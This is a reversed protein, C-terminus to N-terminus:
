RLPTARGACLRSPFVLHLAGVLRVLSLPRPGVPKTGPHGRAPATRDQLCAPQLATMAQGDSTPGRCVTGTEEFRVNAASPLVPRLPADPGTLIRKRACASPVRVTCTAYAMEFRVPLATTRLRMRRRSRAATSMTAPSIAGPAYRTNGAWPAAVAGNLSRVSLRRWLMRAAPASAFPSLHVIRPSPMCGCGGEPEDGEVLSGSRAARGSAPEVRRARDVGLVRDAAM